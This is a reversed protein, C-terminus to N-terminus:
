KAVVRSVIFLLIAIFILAGLIGAIIVYVPNLEGADEEYGSRKRIGLFSWLVARMTKLFSPKRKVVDKLDSM